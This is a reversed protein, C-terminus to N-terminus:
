WQKPCALGLPTSTISPPLLETVNSHSGTPSSLGDLMSSSVPLTDEMHVDRQKCRVSKTSLSSSCSCKCSGCGKPSKEQSNSTPEKSSFPKKASTSDPCKPTSTNSSHGSSHHPGGKGGSCKAKPLEVPPNPTAARAPSWKTVNPQRAQQYSSTLPTRIEDGIHPFTYGRGGLNIWNEVPTYCPTGM